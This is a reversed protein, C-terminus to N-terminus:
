GVEGGSGLGITLLTAALLLFAVTATSIGGVPVAFVLAAFTATGLGVLLSSVVYVGELRFTTADRGVSEGLEIAGLGVDWAVVAAVTGLVTTGVAGTELGSALVGLALTGAGVDTPLAWGRLLGLAFVVAGVTGALLGVSSGIASVVAGLAAIGAVAASLVTPKGTPDVGTM